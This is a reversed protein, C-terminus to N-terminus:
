GEMFKPVPNKLLKKMKTIKKKKKALFLLLCTLNVFLNEGSLNQCSLELKDVGVLGSLRTLTGM